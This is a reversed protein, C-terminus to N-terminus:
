NIKKTSLMEPVIVVDVRICMNWAIVTCLGEELPLTTRIRMHHLIGKGIQMIRFSHTRRPNNQVMSLITLKLISTHNGMILTSSCIMWTDRIM